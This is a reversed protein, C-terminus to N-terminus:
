ATRGIREAALWKTLASAGGPDGSSGQEGYCLWDFPVGTALAWLKLVRPRANRHGSEWQAIAGHSYDMLQALERQDLGASMRAKRLRDALTWTPIHVAM